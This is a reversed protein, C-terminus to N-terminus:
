GAKRIILGCASRGDEVVAEGGIHRLQAVQHGRSVLVLALRDIERKPLGAFTGNEIVDMSLMVVALGGPKLGRLLDEVFRLSGQRDLDPGGDRTVYCFDFGAIDDPVAHPDFLRATAGVPLPADRPEPSTLVLRCGASALADALPDGLGGVGLGRAGSRAVDYRDLARAIFVREWTAISGTERGAGVHQAWDAFVPEKFQALTCVQSVPAKLTPPEPAILQGVAGVRESSYRTAIAPDDADPTRRTVDIRLADAMAVCDGHVHGLIAYSFGDTAETGITVRGGSRIVELLQTQSLTVLRADAGLVDALEHIRLILTGREATLGEFTLDFQIWGTGCGVYLTHFAYDPDDGQEPGGLPTVRSRREPWFVFPDIAISDGEDVLKRPDVIM